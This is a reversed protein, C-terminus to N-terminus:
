AGGQWWGLVSVAWAAAFACTRDHDKLHKVCVPLLDRRGVEGACQLARARLLAVDSAIGVQLADGPDVRHMACATFGSVSDDRSVVRFNVM